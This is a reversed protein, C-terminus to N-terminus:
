KINFHFCCDNLRNPMFMCALSFVQLDKKKILLTTLFQSHMNKTSKYQLCNM